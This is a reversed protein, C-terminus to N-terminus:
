FSYVHARWIKLSYTDEPYFDRILLSFKFFTWTSSSLRSKRTNKDLLYVKGVSDLDMRDYVM